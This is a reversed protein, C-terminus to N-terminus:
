NTKLYKNQVRLLEQEYYKESDNKSFSSFYSWCWLDGFGTGYGDDKTSTEGRLIDVEYPYGDELKYRDIPIREEGRFAVNKIIEVVQKQVTTEVGDPSSKVVYLKPLGLEQTKKKKFYEQVKSM